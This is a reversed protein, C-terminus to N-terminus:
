LLLSVCLHFTKIQSFLMKIYDLKEFTIKLRKKVIFTSMLQLVLRPLHPNLNVETFGHNPLEPSPEEEPVPTSPKAASVDSLAPIRHLYGYGIGCGLSLAFCKVCSWKYCVILINMCNIFYLIFYQQIIHFTRM